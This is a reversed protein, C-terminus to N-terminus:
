RHVDRTAVAARYLLWTGAVLLLVVGFIFLEM